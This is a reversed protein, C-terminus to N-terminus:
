RASGWRVFDYVPGVKVKVKKSLGYQATKKLETSPGTERMYCTRSIPLQSPAHGATSKRIKLLAQFDLISHFLNYFNNAMINPDNWATSVAMEWDVSQLDFLFAERECNKMSCFETKTQKRIFSLNGNLKRIGFIMYRVGALQSSIQMSCTKKIFVFWILVYSKLHWFTLFKNLVHCPKGLKREFFM